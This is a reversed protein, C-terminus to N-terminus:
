IDAGCKTIIKTFYYFFFKRAVYYFFFLNITVEQLAEGEGKEYIRIVGVHVFGQTAMPLKTGALGLVGRPMVEQTPMVPVMMEGSGLVPHGRGSGVCCHLGKPTGVM